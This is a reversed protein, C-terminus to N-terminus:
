SLLQLRVYFCSESSSFLRRPQKSTQAASKGRGVGDYWDGEEGGRHAERRRM